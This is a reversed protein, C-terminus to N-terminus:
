RESPLRPWFAWLTIGGIALTGMSLMLPQTLADVVYAGNDISFLLLKASDVHYPFVDAIPNDDGQMTVATAGGVSTSPEVSVVRHTVPLREGGRQLTAVDGIRLESAPIERVIGLSGTPITPSMSGTAFTILSLGFLNSIIMWLLSVSGAM